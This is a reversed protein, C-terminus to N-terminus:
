RSRGLKTYDPVLWSEPCDFGLFHPVKPWGFDPTAITDPVPCNTLIHANEPRSADYVVLYRGGIERLGDCLCHDELSYLKGNVLQEWEITWGNKSHRFDKARGITFRANLKLSKEDVSRNYESIGIAVGLGGFMLM